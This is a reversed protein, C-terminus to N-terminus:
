RRQILRKSKLIKSKKKKKKMMTQLLPPDNEIFRTQKIRCTNDEKKMANSAQTSQKTARKELINQILQQAQDPYDQLMERILASWENDDDDHHLSAADDEM